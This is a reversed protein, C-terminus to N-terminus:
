KITQIFQNLNGAAAYKQLQAVYWDTMTEIYDTQSRYLVFSANTLDILSIIGAKYQALKQQYTDEASKLQIPLEILNAETIKLSQDAQAFSNNLALKEQQLEFDSAELQFRNIALKDKKYISNFLNYTIAIGAAYNFRQFGLGSSLANYNDNYQISSGRAWTSGALIIKPLYSKNILKDNSLFIEKKRTYYNLLPNHLSDVNLDTLIPRQTIFKDASSDINIRNASIGTLYSLQEKLQYLVGLTQNFTIKAKSLEAKALSSDSGAKLGSLTLARIIKFVSDYRYINQRDADLRYQIKLLDFYLKSVNLSIQYSEKQFDADQYNVYSEANNLKAKNLGFNVLEYESYLVAINGTAAATNNENRIGGSSSPTIGIPLYSGALSNDSAVNIQDSIKLQPMFSHRTDVVIAKASNILARKQMLAPLYVKAAETLESLTYMKEQASVYLAPMLLCISFVWICKRNCFTGMFM